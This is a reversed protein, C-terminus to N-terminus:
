FHYYKSFKHVLLLIHFLKRFNLFIQLREFVEISVYKHTIICWKAKTLKWVSYGTYLSTVNILIRSQWWSYFFYLENWGLSMCKKCSKETTFGGALNRHGLTRPILSNFREFCIEKKWGNYFVEHTMTM